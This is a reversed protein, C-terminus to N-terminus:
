PRHGGLNTILCDFETRFQEMVSHIMGKDPQTELKYKINNVIAIKNYINYDDLM